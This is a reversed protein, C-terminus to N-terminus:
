SKKNLTLIPKEYWDLERDGHYRTHSFIVPADDILMKLYSHSNSANLM